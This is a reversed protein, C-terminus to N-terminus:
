KAPCKLMTSHTLLLVKKPTTVKSRLLLLVAKKRRTVKRRSHWPVGLMLGSCVSYLVTAAIALSSGTDLSYNVGEVVDTIVEDDFMFYDEFFGAPCIDSRFILLTLGQFLTALTFYDAMGKLRSQSIPCCGAFMLTFWAFAGLVNATMAFAKASNFKTDFDPTV